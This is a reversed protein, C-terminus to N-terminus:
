LAAFELALNGTFKVMLSSEDVEAM